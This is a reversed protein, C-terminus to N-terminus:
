CHLRMFIFMFYIGCYVQKTDGQMEKNPRLTGRQLSWFEQPGNRLAEINKLSIGSINVLKDYVLDVLHDEEARVLQKAM